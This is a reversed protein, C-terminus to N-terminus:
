WSSLLRDSASKWDFPLALLELCECTKLVSDRLEVQTDPPAVAELMERVVMLSKGLANSERHMRDFKKGNVEFSLTDSAMSGLTFNEAAATSLFQSSNMAVGWAGDHPATEILLAKQTSLLLQRLGADQSFKLYCATAGVLVHMGHHGWWTYDKVSRTARAALAKGDAPSSIASQSKFTVELATGALLHEKFAMILNESTSFSFLNGRHMFQVRKGCTLWNSFPSNHFLIVGDPASPRYTVDWVAGKFKPDKKLVAPLHLEKSWGHPDSTAAELKVGASRRRAWASTSAIRELVNAVTRIDGAFVLEGEAGEEPTVWGLATLAEEMGPVSLLERATADRLVNIKMPKGEAPQAAVNAQLKSITNCAVTFSKIESFDAAIIMELAPMLPGFEPPPEDGWSAM